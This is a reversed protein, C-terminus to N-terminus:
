VVNVVTLPGGPQEIQHKQTGADRHKQEPHDGYNPDNLPEATAAHVGFAVVDGNPGIEEHLNSGHLRNLLFRDFSTWRGELSRAM